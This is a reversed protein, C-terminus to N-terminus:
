KIKKIFFAELTDGMNLNKVGWKLMKKVGYFKDKKTAHHIPCCFKSIEFEHKAFLEILTKETFHWFHEQPYWGAWNVSRVFVSNYRPVTVYFIGNPKLVRWIEDLTEPLNPIHELVHHAQIVDFYNSPFNCEELLMDRIDRGLSKGYAAAKSLLEIGISEKVGFQAAMEVLKGTYCGIELIKTSDNLYPKLQNIRYASEELYNIYDDEHIEVESDKDVEVPAPNTMVLGCSLCKLAQFPVVKGNATFYSYNGEIVIDFKESGCICVPNSM